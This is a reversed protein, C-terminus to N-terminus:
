QTMFRTMIPDGQEDRLPFDRELSFIRDGDDRHLVALYETQPLTGRLLHVVGSTRDATFRGAGLANGPQGGSNEYIVVWTPETTEVHAVAVAFGASQDRIIFGDTQVATEPLEAQVVQTQSPAAANPQWLWMAGIGAAVGAAFGLVIKIRNAM